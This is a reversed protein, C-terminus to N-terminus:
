GTCRLQDAANSKEHTLPICITVATGVENENNRIALSGGYLAVIHDAVTLGIGPGASERDYKKFVSKCQGIFNEAIGLGNDAVEFSFSSKDSTTSLRFELNRDPHRFKIANDVLREMITAAHTHSMAPLDVHQDQISIGPKSDIKETATGLVSNFVAVIDIPQPEADPLKIQALLDLADMIEGCGKASTEIFDVLQQQQETLDDITAALMQSFQGLQRIPTRLDHSVIALFERNTLAPENM